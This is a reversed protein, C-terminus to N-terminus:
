GYPLYEIGTQTMGILGINDENLSSNAAAVGLQAATMSGSDILKSYEDLFEQSAQSGFINSHLHSVVSQSTAQPGLVADLAIQMLDEYETGSDLYSLVLGIYFPDTASNPGILAGVLKAANGANGSVDFAYKGDDFNIREIGTLTDIGDNGSVTYESSTVVVSYDSRNGNFFATDIGIGGDIFDNGPGGTIENPLANGYLFDEGSGGILNEITTGINITIQGNTNIGIGKEGIYDWYGPELHIVASQNLHAATLTDNGAGDWIFNPSDVSVSYVDDTARSLPNPGYLYQLAAIDPDTFSDLWRNPEGEPPGAYSMISWIQSDELKSLGGANGEHPHSLGLTHGLEHVFVLLWRDASTIKSSMLLDNSELQGLPGAGLGDHPLNSNQHIAMTNLANYNDTEVFNVGLFVSVEAIKERMIAKQETTFPVYDGSWVQHSGYEPYQDPFSFYYTNQPGLREAIINDSWEPEMLTNIWYPLPRVDAAFSITGIWHPIITFDSNVVHVYQDNSLEGSKKEPGFPFPLTWRFIEVGTVIDVGNRNPVTDAIRFSNTASNFSIDFESFSGKYTLVDRVGAGGDIQDDSSTSLLQDNASTGIIISM